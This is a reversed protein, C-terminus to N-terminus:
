RCRGAYSQGTGLGRGIQVASVPVADFLRIGDRQHRDDCNFRTNAIYDRGEQRMAAGWAQAAAVAAPNDRVIGGGDATVIIALRVELGQLGRWFLEAAREEHAACDAADICSMGFTRRGVEAPPGVARIFDGLTMRDATPLAVGLFPGLEMTCPGELDAKLGLEFSEIRGERVSVHLNCHRVDYLRHQRGDPGESVEVVQGARAELEAVTAGLMAPVLIASLSREARVPGPCALAAALLLCGFSVRRLM